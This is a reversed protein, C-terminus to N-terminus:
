ISGSDEGMTSDAGMVDGSLTQGAALQYASVSMLGTAVHQAMTSRTYRGVAWALLGYTGPTGLADIKPLAVNQRKMLGLVVASGVAVITHTESAALRSAASSARRAFGTSKRRAPTAAPVRVIVPKSTKTAM